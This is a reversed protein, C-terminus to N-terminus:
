PLVLPGSCTMSMPAKPSEYHYIDMYITQHVNGYELLFEDLVVGDETVSGQRYFSVMEGHPGLLSNLYVEEREPGALGEGGIKIPNTRMYGYVRNTAVPCDKRPTVMFFSLNELTTDYAQRGHEDWMGEGHAFVILILQKSKIPRLVVARGQFPAGEQMGSFEATVGDVGAHVIAEREGLRAERSQEAVYDLLYKLTTNIHEGHMPASTFLHITISEDPSTMYAEYNSSYEDFGALPAYRIGGSIIAKKAQARIVL